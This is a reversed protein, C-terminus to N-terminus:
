ARCGGRDVSACSPEGAREGRWVDVVCGRVHGGVCGSVGCGAGRVAGSDDDARRGRCEQRRGLPAAAHPAREPRPDRRHHHARGSRRGTRPRSARLPGRHDRGDRRRVPRPRIRTRGRNRRARRRRRATGGPLPVPRVQRHRGDPTRRRRHPRGTRAPGGPQEPVVPRGPVAPAAGDVAGPQASRRAARVAPGPARLRRPRDGEGARDAGPVVPGRLHRHAPRAHERVHRGPRGPGRRDPGRDALRDARRHGRRAPDAARRLRGAHGHVPERRERPRARSARRAPRRGIRVHADRGPLVGGGPAAPRGPAATGRASRGPRGALVRDAALDPERSRGRLRATGAALAHLRRVPGAAAGVAARARGRPLRLRPARRPGAAGDVLRGGRHPAPGADPRPCRRRARVAPRAAAARGVPRLRARGRRGARDAPGGRRDRHRRAPAARRGTRPRAPPRHRVRGPLDHAAVRAARGRRRAGGAARGPRARRQAAARGAHQLDRVRRRVPQPVLAAAARVVAARRRPTRGAGAAPARRRGRRRATRRPGRRDAGRVAGPGATGRRTRVPGQQRAADRHALRRRPRLVRRRRGGAARRPDGRVARVPDGGAPHAARPGRRSRHRARAARGPRAQRERHAAARGPRHVGPGHLRAAARGRVAPRRRRRRGRGGPLRRPAQRRPPRRPRGRRGARRGPLRRPRERDRGAGGPLRPDEGPRRHPRPVRDHRGPAVQGPRRHPVHPGRARRVPRRRVARRVPRAPRPVRARAARGRPVARRPRRRGGAPARHRARLCPHQPLPRRDVPVRQPRGGPEDHRHDVRHARLLEPHHRRPDRPTRGM